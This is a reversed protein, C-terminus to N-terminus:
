VGNTVIEGDETVAIEDPVIPEAPVLLYGLNDPDEWLVYKKNNKHYAM